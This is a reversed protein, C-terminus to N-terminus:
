ERQITKTNPLASKGAKELKEIDDALVKFVIKQNDSSLVEIKTNKFQITQANREYNLNQFFAQRALGDKTYERYVIHLGTADKGGYILEYNVEPISLEKSLIQRKEIKNQKSLPFSAFKIEKPIMEMKDDTFLYYYGEERIFKNSVFFGNTTILFKYESNDNAVVHYENGNFKTNGIIKFPIETDFKVTKTKANIVSAVPYKRRLFLGNLEFSHQPKFSYNVFDTDRTIHVVAFDEVKIMVSGVNSEKVEDPKYNTIISYTYATTETVKSKDPKEVEIYEGLYACGSLITSVLLLLVVKKM